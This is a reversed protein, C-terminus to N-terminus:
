NCKKREKYSCIMCSISALMYYTGLLFLVSCFIRPMFFKDGIIFGIITLVIIASFIFNWSNKYYKDNMNQSDLYKDGINFNSNAMGIFFNYFKYYCVLIIIISLVFFLLFLIPVYKYSMVNFAVVFLSLYMMCFSFGYFFDLIYTFIPYKKMIKRNINLFLYFLSYVIQFLFVSGFILATYFAENKIVSKTISFLPIPGDESVICILSSLSLAIIVVAPKYGETFDGWESYLYKIINKKM